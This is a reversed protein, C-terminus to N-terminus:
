RAPQAARLKRYIEVEKKAEKQRGLKHLIRALAMHPEPYTSDLRAAEGLESLADEPRALDELVTALQFHAKALNPDLRIAERLNREADALRNLFQQTIALNLYPWPSPHPSDRDLEIAKEYNSVALENQNEYYYCLGLNDYARAM